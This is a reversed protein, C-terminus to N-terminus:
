RDFELLKVDKIELCETNGTSLNLAGVQAKIGGDETLTLWDVPTYEDAFSVTSLALLLVIPWM